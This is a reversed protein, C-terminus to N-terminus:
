MCLYEIRPENLFGSWGGGYEVCGSRGFRFCGSNIDSSGHGLGVLWRGWVLGGLFVRAVFVSFSFEWATGATGLQRGVGNVLQRDFVCLIVGTRQIWVAAWGNYWHRWRGWTSGAFFVHAAGVCWIRRDWVVGATRFRQGM